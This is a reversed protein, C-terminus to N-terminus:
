SCWYKSGIGSCAHDLGNKQRQNVCSSQMSGDQHVSARPLIAERSYRPAMDLTGCRRTYVTASKVLCQRIEPRATM